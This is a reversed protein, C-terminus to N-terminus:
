EPGYSTKCGYNDCTVTKKWGTGAREASEKGVSAASSIGRNDANALTMTHNKVSINFHKLMDMGILVENLKYLVHADMNRFETDGIKISNLRTSMNYAMGNATSTKGIEGMPLQAQNALEMPISIMTAGTDIMFPMPVNNILVTGRYHGQSDAKLVLCGQILETEPQEPKFPKEILPNEPYFNIKEGYERLKPLINPAAKWAPIGAMCALIFILTKYVPEGSPTSLPPARLGYGQTYNLM